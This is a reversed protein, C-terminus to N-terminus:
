CISSHTGIESRFLKKNFRDINQPKESWTCNWELYHVLRLMLKQTIPKRDEFIYGIQKNMLALQRFLIWSGFSLFFVVQIAISKLASIVFLSRLLFMIFHWFYSYLHVFLHRSLLLVFIAGFVCFASLLLSILEIGYVFNQVFCFDVFDCPSSELM